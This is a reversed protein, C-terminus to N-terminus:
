KHEFRASKFASIADNLFECAAYPHMSEMKESAFCIHTLTKQSVLAVGEFGQPLWVRGQKKRLSILIKSTYKIRKKWDLPPNYKYGNQKSESWFNYGQISYYFDLIMSDMFFDFIREGHFHYANLNSPDSGAFLVVPRNLGKSLYHCKNCEALTPATAKIEIFIDLEPIYFDPLYYEGNELHYGEPEYQYKIGLFDFMVAWRAELRSRFHYGNYQTQIAKISM